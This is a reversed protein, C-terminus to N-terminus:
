AGARDVLIVNLALWAEIDCRRYFITRGARVFDPGRKQARWVALTRVDRNLLEALDEPTYISFRRRLESSLDSASVTPAISTEDQSRQSLELV